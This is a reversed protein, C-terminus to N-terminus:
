SVEAMRSLTPVSSVSSTNHDDHQPRLNTITNGLGDFLGKFSSTGVGDMKGISTFNKGTGTALEINTGLAFRANANNLSNNMSQLQTADRIVTVAQSGIELTGSSNFEVRGLFGMGDSDNPAKMGVNVTGTAGHNLALGGSGTVTVDANININKTANLILNNASWSIASNINIHGEDGGGSDNAITVDGSGLATQLTGAGISSKTQASSGAVINFDTPDILWMGSQGQTARPTVQTGDQINVQAASTEIFGGNGGSPASADLTGAIQAQGKTMDGLLLIRGSQKDLTRAQVTGENNVVTSMLTDATKATMIVLGGDAQILGKNEVLANFTGEDVNVTVLGDGTFDLRVTNGSALVASGTDANIRGANSVRPAIMAVVKGKLDGLHTISGAGQGQTFRLQGNLFDADSLKLTSAVLGGVHVQSDKGFVIGNPNVLYVQGNANLRGFIQSAGQDSIRNLAQSSAGPQVFNVTADKGINFSNWNAILKHSNQQVTMVNGTQSISGSGSTIAGGTPLAHASVAQSPVVTQAQAWATGALANLGVALATLLTKGSRSQKGRGRVHEAVPVFASLVDSWVLRYCHNLSANNM